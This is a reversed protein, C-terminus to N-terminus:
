VTEKLNLITEGKHIASIGEVIEALKKTNKDMTEKTEEIYKLKDVVEGEVETVSLYLLFPYRLPCMLLSFMEGIDCEGQLGMGNQESHLSVSEKFVNDSKTVLHGLQVNIGTIAQFLACSLAETHQQYYCLVSAPHKQSIVYM